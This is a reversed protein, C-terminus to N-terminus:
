MFRGDSIITLKQIAATSLTGPRDASTIGASTFAELLKEKPTESFGAICNNIITKRPQRFLINVMRYYADLGGSALGGKRVGLFIIASDVKPAPEFDKPALTMIIKPEAWIQVSAALRNMRPPTECVREAVEKQITFVARSPMGSLEGMMRFLYGTIYYPINGALKAHHIKFKSHLLPLETRADGQIITLKKGLIHNKIRSALMEALIPDKEIAIIHNAPSRLLRETLEGHGSGIEIITDGRTIQLANVMTELAHQNKLFHQGLKRAM